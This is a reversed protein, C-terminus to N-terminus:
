GTLSDHEVALDYVPMLKMALEVRVDLSSSPDKWTEAPRRLWAAQMSLRQGRRRM